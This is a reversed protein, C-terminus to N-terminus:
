SMGVIVIIGSTNKKKTQDGTYLTHRKKEKRGDEKEDTFDFGVLL